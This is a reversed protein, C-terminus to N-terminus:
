KFPPPSLRALLDARAQSFLLIAGAATASAGRALSLNASSVAHSRQEAAQRAAFLSSLLMSHVPLLEDPPVVRALRDAMAAFSASAAAVRSFPPGSMHEIATLVSTLGDLSSTIPRIRREYALFSNLVSSWHDLELRYAQTRDLMEALRSRLQQLQAPRLGGLARDREPLAEFLASVTRVDGRRMAADARLTLETTLHAYAADANLEAVLRRSVVSRLEDTGSGGTASLAARLIAIREEPVDTTEAAAIALRVSDELTLPPLPPDRRPMVPGAMLSMSLGQGAAARLDFIVDDFLAALERVEAAHYSFHDNPWAILKARAEEAKQLRLKPDKEAEVEALAVTVAASIASYDTPGRTEAYRRARTAEAYRSTRELDVASM